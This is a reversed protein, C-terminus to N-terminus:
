PGQQDDYGKRASYFALWILGGALVGTFVFAIGMAIYGHVSMRTDGALRWSAVAGWGAVMVLGAMVAYLAVLGISPRAKM